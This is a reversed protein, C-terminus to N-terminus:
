KSSPKQQVEWKYLQLRKLKNCHHSESVNGKKIIVPFKKSSHLQLAGHVSIGGEGPLRQEPYVNEMYWKFSKCNLKKRLEVRSSVDGFSKGILDKRIQYFYKKYDDLWVEALRMSNYLMTDGKSDSGYPRWKRFLHGVRSCPIIELTGGCMWIRFSIELNEGGWIDMGADYQGIENFYQRTIAFLGGAMTPSPSSQYEFTDASIMDIVPCVVTTRNKSIRELLPPLWEKNVECHSDLFVLIEGTAHKAGLMRGRILGERQQTRVLKVKDLSADVYNQLKGKLEKLTSYDDVLIIEHILNKASRNLVSHVTRADRTDQIERYIGLRNSILENFAHNKYGEDRIREDENNQIIGLVNKDKKKNGLGLQTEFDDSPGDDQLHRNHVRELEIYRPDTEIYMFSMVNFLVWFSLTLFGCLLLYRAPLKLGM